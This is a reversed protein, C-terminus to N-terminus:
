RPRMTRLDYRGKDRDYIIKYRGKPELTYTVTEPEEGGERDTTVRFRPKVLPDPVRYEGIEDSELSTERFDPEEEPTLSLEFTVPVTTSNWISFADPLQQQATAAQPLVAITSAAIALVLLLRRADNTM